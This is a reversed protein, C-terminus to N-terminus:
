ADGALAARVQEDSVQDFREYSMGVAHFPEPTYPCIFEDALTAFEAAASIPATPVAVVVSAAGADRVDLAAVRMTAGTAIGDDVLIVTKGVIAVPARGRRYVAERRRLEAREREIVADLAAASVQLSHVLGDDLVMRSASIAGLALEEHGPTGLKRVVIVELASSLDDAIQAAIPVGGRALGIVVTDDPDFRGPRERLARSLATGAATRDRYHARIM